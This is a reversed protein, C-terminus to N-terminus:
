GCLLQSSSSGYHSVPQQSGHISLHASALSVSLRTTHSLTITQSHTNHSHVTYLHTTYLHTTHSHVTYLHTTHSHVYTCWVSALDQVVCVFTHCLQRFKDKEQSTSNGEVLDSEGGECEVSQESVSTGQGMEHPVVGLYQLNM